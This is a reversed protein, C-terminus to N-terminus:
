WVDGPRWDCSIPESLDLEPSTPTLRVLVFGDEEATRVLGADTRVSTPGKWTVWGLREYFAVRGTGLAGLRFTRDIHEGVQRMVASGYGRRQFSPRTAVAEVYGTTLDLGNTHLEREVVSAHAAIEEDADLVFHVGGLAHEWDEDTFREDGDGWAVDFIERLVVGEDPRLEDSTVRRILPPREPV